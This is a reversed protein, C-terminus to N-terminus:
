SSGTEVQLGEEALMEQLRALVRPKLEGFFAESNFYPLQIHENELHAEDPLDYDADTFGQLRELRYGRLFVRRIVHEIGSADIDLEAVARVTEAMQEDTLGAFKCVGLFDDRLISLGRNTIADLWYDLDTEKEYLLLLYTRMSMHGGALAWPYGPNTQPLYAPFEVGKAQMAFGTAGLERSLRMTGQGLEPLQGEGIQIIAERTADADGYSLGGAIPADPNRKNYEMAYALTVGCSISDMGMEDVLEVLDCVKDVDFVGINSSLLNLPEFDLKARFKGPKGDENDYVNKHCSIGCRYCSEDKVLWPGAEEVAPRHLHFSVDTGTPQFNMEPMAHVPNLAEFNRWTGGGGNFKKKDRFRASGKGTAIEKNIAKLEPPKKGAANPADAVIAILNKSGMVSGMGGRGCWRAKPDGSKLQNETSLGIAAFRVERFNEGAPGIVAFHADPYKQYLSQIKANVRQGCLEAADKLEMRLSGDGDRSIHLYVPKDSRGHFVIEDVHLWRLKTGFKGSGASWMASPKGTLSQKLPSYAHFYTRLGTMVESGSLLGLNMVLRASPDWPDDVAYDELYKFARAIGGFVDEYDECGVTQEQVSGDSLDMTVRLFEFQDPSRLQSM